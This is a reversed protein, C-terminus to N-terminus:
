GKPKRRSCWELTEEIGMPHGLLYGQGYNCGMANLMQRQEETEIGEAVMKMEFIQAISVIARVMGEAQRHHTMDTVFSRDIKLTDADLHMLHSLSSYGTGFDDIAIRFGNQKAEKVWAMVPETQVLQSETIEFKITGPELGHSQILSTIRRFRETSNIQRASVNVSVFMDSADMHNCAGSGQYLVAFDRAVHEM